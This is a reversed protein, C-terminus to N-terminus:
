ASLSREYPERAQWYERRLQLIGEQRSDAEAQVLSIAEEANRVEERRQQIRNQGARYRIADALRERAENRRRRAAKLLETTDPFPQPPPPGDYVPRAPMIADQKQEDGPPHRLILCKSAGMYPFGASMSVVLLRTTEGCDM